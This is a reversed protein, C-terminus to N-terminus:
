RRSPWPEHIPVHLIHASLYAAAPSPSPSSRTPTPLSTTPRGPAPPASCPCSPGIGQWSSSEAETGVVENTVKAACRRAVAGTIRASGNTLTFKVPVISGLKFMSTDDSFDATSGGNIPQLTGSWAYTVSVKFSEEAKNGAADTASCNVPSQGLPFTSGSPPECNVAVNNGDVLNSATLNTYDVVAVSSSTAMASVDAHADLTPSTTDEVTVKFTSQSSNGASDTSTCSVTTTGLEFTSGSAPACDISPNPDIADSASVDDAFNVTAGSAGTAEVV